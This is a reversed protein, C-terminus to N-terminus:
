EDSDLDAGKTISVAKRDSKDQYRMEPPPCTCHLTCRGCRGCLIRQNCDQYEAHQWALLPRCGRRYARKIEAPRM